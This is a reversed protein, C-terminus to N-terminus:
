VKFTAMKFLAFNGIFMWFACGGLMMWTLEIHMVEAYYDPSMLLLSGAMLFPVASLIYASMRGETSIAHVKRRLKARDRIVKALGDLIERLSGGTTSQISVGTVFLPLDDHGVREYLNQMAKIISAGYTIEDSLIGFETGIPDAMEEAVMAFAIPVPHGAQLGRTILDLAEPLQEGFLKHRKKRKSQLIKWPLLIMLLAGVGIAVQWNGMYLFLLAGVLTSVLTTIMTFQALPMKMATQGHLTVLKATFANTSKDDDLGREKRLQIYADKHTNDNADQIRMRRNVAKRGGAAPAIMMYVSEAVIIAFAAACVYVLIQSFDGEFM